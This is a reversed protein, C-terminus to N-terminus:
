KVSGGRHSMAALRRKLAQHALHEVHSLALARPLVVGGQLAATARETSLSQANTAKLSLTETIAIVEAPVTASGSPFLRPSGGESSSYDYFTEITDSAVTCVTGPGAIDYASTTKTELTGFVADATTVTQTVKNATGTYSTACTPDLTAGTTITDTEMSPQTQTAPIWDPVTTSSTAGSVGNYYTYTINGGTPAGFTFLRGGALSNLALTGTFAAAAPSSLPGTEIAVNDVWSGGDSLAGNCQTYSGDALQERDISVTGGASPCDVGAAATASSIGPDSETYSLTADNNFTGTAEPIVDILGNNAGYVTTYTVGDSDSAVVKSERLQTSGGSQTYAVTAATTTTTTALTGTDTETSTFTTNSSTGTATVNAVATSAMTMTVPSSSILNNTDTESLAGTYSANLGSANPRDSGPTSVPNPNPASTSSGGCGALLLAVGVCLLVRQIHLRRM